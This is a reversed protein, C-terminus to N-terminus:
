HNLAWYPMHGLDDGRSTLFDFIGRYNKKAWELAVEYDDDGNLDFENPAVDQVVGHPFELHYLGKGELNTHYTEDVKWDLEKGNNWLVQFHKGGESDTIIHTVQGEKIPQPSQLYETQGNNKSWDFM